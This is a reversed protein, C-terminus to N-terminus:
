VLNFIPPVVGTLPKQSSFTEVPDGEQAVVWTESAGKQQYEAIIPFQICDPEEWTEMGEM